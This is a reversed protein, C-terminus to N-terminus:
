NKHEFISVSDEEMCGTIVGPKRQKCHPRGEMYECSYCGADSHFTVVVMEKVQYNHPVIFDTKLVILEDWM